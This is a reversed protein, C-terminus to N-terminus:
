KTLEEILGFMEDDKGEAVHFEYLRERVRIFVLREESLGPDLFTLLNQVPRGPVRQTEDILDQVGPSFSSHLAEKLSLFHVKVRPSEAWAVLGSRDGGKTVVQSYVTTGDAIIMELLTGEDPNQFRLGLTVLTQMVDPGRSRRVAGPPAPETPPQPTTPLQADEEGVPHVDTLLHDATGLGILVALLGATALFRSMHPNYRLLLPNLPLLPTLPLFPPLPTLLILLTSEKVEKVEKAEKEEM